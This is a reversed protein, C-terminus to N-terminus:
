TAVRDVERQLQAARDTASRLETKREALEAQAEKAKRVAAALRDELDSQSGGAVRSSSAGTQTRRVRDLEACLQEVERQAAEQDQVVSHLLARLSAIEGTVDVASRHLGLLRQTLYLHLPLVLNLAHIWVTRGFYPRAPELWPQGESGEELYPQWVVDLQPYLDIADQLSALQDGLLHTDRRPVWCQALPVIGPQELIGRRLGPLHLYAWVQLFPYFSSIAMQRDSSGMSEFQHMLFAVGWAYSGVQGLDELLPLFRCHVPDGRTAFL